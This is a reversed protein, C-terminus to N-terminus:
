AGLSAAAAHTSRQELDVVELFMKRHAASQEAVLGEDVCDVAHGKLDLAALCAARLDENLAGVPHNAVVDKPVLGLQAPTSHSKRISVACASAKM